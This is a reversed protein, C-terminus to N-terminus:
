EIQKIPSESHPRQANPPLLEGLPRTQNSAAIVACQSPAELTSLLEKARDKALELVTTKGGPKDAQMRMSASCDMVVVVNRPAPKSSAWGAFLRSMAFVLLLLVLLRLLLQLLDVIKPAFVNAREERQLLRLSPFDQVPFKHRSILHIAIPVALAALGALMAPFLFSM